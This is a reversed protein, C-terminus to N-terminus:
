RVYIREIVRTDEDDPGPGRGHLATWNSLVLAKDESWRISHAHESCVLSRLEEHLMEAASNVPVMLDSDYRWGISGRDRFRLSCYFRRSTTGAVWVSREALAHARSGCKQLLDDFAMVTTPRRTDGYARLVVYRVPVPWFVTDTHLPFRGTGFLASQSGPPADDSNKVRIEKIMEGNPSPEPRGLTSALELLQECSSIGDVLAWGCTELGALPM